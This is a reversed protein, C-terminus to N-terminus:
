GDAKLWFWTPVAAMATRRASAQCGSLYPRVSRGDRRASRPTRLRAPGGKPKTTNAGNGDSPAGGTTKKPTSKSLIDTKFLNRLKHHCKSSCFRPDLHTVRLINRCLSNPSETPRLLASEVALAPETELANTRVIELKASDSISLLPREDCIPSHFLPARRPEHGWPTPSEATLV